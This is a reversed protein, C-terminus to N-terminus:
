VDQKLGGLEKIAKKLSLVCGDLEDRIQKEPFRIVLWDRRKLWRNRARDNLRRSPLSHWKESDCEVDIKGKRCFIAFDLRYRCRGKEMLCCEHEATIGAAKLAKRMIGEIPVVDFLQSVEDAGLLKELNTFGFSIRRRSRNEIRQPLTKLPGLDLKCYTDGARSHDKEDPLLQRRLYHSFGKIRAYYNISKGKKRFTRTQYLALFDAKRKPASKLPIRYWREKLILDLDKKRRVVGVLVLKENKESARM